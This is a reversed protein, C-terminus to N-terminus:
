PPHNQQPPYQQPPPYQQSPPYQQPPYQQPPPQGYDYGQNPQNQYFYPTNMQNQLMHTPMPHPFAFKAEEAKKKRRRGAVVAAVVLMLLTLMVAVMAIFTVAPLGMITSEKGGEKKKLVGAVTFSFTEPSAITNGMPDAAAVSVTVTYTKGDELSASPKFTVNSGDWSFTGSVTPSVSFANEVSGTDMPKSFYVTIGTSKSVNVDGDAPKTGLITPITAMGTTFSFAYETLMYNGALDKVDATIAVTYKTNEKMGPVSPTCIPEISFLSGTWSLLPNKELNPSIRYNNVVSDQDMLESFTIGISDFPSVDVQGNVPYHATINPPTNDVAASTKFTSAFESALPNGESDKAATTIRVAYSTNLGLDPTYKVNMITSPANWTFAGSAAPTIGFAGQASAKDMEKSFTVVVPKNPPSDTAMDPPDISVVVPPGGSGKATTFSFSYQTQLHNGSLDAAATSINATYTVNAQLPNYPTCTMNTGNFAIAGAAAPSLSFASRTGVEDMLESFVVSIATNVSVKTSGDKPSTDTVTPPTTDGVSGTTFSFTYPASINLGGKDAASANLTVTYLTSATLNAGPTFTVTSSSPWSFTGTAAPSAWLASEVTAANMDKDFTVSIATNIPIGTAKDPPTTSIVKPPTSSAEVKVHIVPSYWWQHYQAHETGDTGSIDESYGSDTREKIIRLYTSGYTGPELIDKYVQDVQAKAVFYYDGPTDPAVITDKWLTGSTLGDNANDWGTGGQWKGAYDAHDPTTQTSKNVPDPDNGWQISSHDCVMSGNVNWQFTMPTKPSVSIGDSVTGPQWQVYPQALDALYLCERRVEMGYGRTLDGGFSSESPNKVSSMENSLWYVGCGPYPGKSVEGGTIEPQANGAYTWDLFTGVADYLISGPSGTNDASYAGGYNGIYDGLRLTAADFYYFDPAGYGPYNYGTIKSTGSIGSHGGGWSYLLMRTGGHPDLGTRFMHHDVLERATKDNCTYFIDPPGTSGPGNYDLGRNLDWGNTDTRRQRDFGDPNHSCVIYIERNDLLWKLWNDMPSEYTSTFAYRLLWDCFWYFGITGVTEDGHPAGVLLIEPKQFGRSENTLRVVWYDYTGGGSKTITGTGYMENAKFVELYGPYQTELDKYWQVLEAYDAPKKYIIEASPTTHLSATGLADPVSSSDPCSDPSRDLV